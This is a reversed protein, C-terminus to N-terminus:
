RPDTEKQKSSDELGIVQNLSLFAMLCYVTASTGQNRNPGAPTLADHCGGTSFDYVADNQQNAGLFWDVAARIPILLDSNRNDNYSACLAEIFTACTKPLEEGEPNEGQRIFVTGNSSVERLTAVLDNGTTRISDDDLLQGAIAFAQALIPWDGSGWAVYWDPRAVQKKIMNLHHKLFRKIASAGPFSQLYNSAGLVAYSAARPSELTIPPLVQHFLDHATAQLHKPGKWVLYGLAWIAKGVM